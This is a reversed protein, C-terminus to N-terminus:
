ENREDWFGKKLSLKDGEWGMLGQSKLKQLLRSFTEPITGIAAAVDKKSMPIRYHEKRGYQEQLFCFFREEVDRSSLSLIRDTLYRQKAMLMAIFDRRFSEDVLLCEIQRRPILLVLSPEVATASVPYDRAEFVVVEGFVEGSRLTKIVVERGDPANKSLQVAGEALVYMGRGESGELFLLQRKDLRKPVAIAALSTLSRNSIGRFFESRELYKRIEVAKRQNHYVQGSFDLFSKVKKVYTM